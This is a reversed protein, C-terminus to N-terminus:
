CRDMSNFRSFDLNQLFSMDETVERLQHSTTRKCRYKSMTLLEIRILSLLLNFGLSQLSSM